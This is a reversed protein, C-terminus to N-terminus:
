AFNLLIRHLNAPGPAQRWEVILSLILMYFANLHRKQVLTRSGGAGSKIGKEYWKHNPLAKKIALKNRSLRAM